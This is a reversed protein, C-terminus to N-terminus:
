SGTICSAKYMYASEHLFLLQYVVHVDDLKNCNQNRFDNGYEKVVLQIRLM